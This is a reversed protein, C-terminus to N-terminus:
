SPPANVLKDLMTALDGITRVDPLKNLPVSVDFRDEVEMLLDMIKLSTLDLGSILDTDENLDQADGVFDGLLEYLSSLIEQHTQLTKYRLYSQTEAAATARNL